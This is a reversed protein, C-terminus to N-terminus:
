IKGSLVNGSGDRMQMEGTHYYVANSAVFNNLLSLSGKVLELSHTLLSRNSHNIKQISPIMGLLNSYCIKLRISYPEEVLQSLKTLTLEEPEYGMSDGLRKQFRMRKEELFRIKLILGEKEKGAEDLEELRSDVVAKKEKQLVSLLSRYLDTEEELLRLLGDLLSNM